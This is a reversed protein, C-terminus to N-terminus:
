ALKTALVLGEVIIDTDVPDQLANHFILPRYFPNTSNIVATGRSRAIGLQPCIGLTNYYMTPVILKTHQPCCNKAEERYSSYFVFNINPIGDTVHSSLIYATVEILGSLSGNRFKEYEEADELINQLSYPVAAVNQLKMNVFSTPLFHDQFTYGVKLNKIVSIGLPDLIESPGMGFLQLLQPSNIVGTCLIVENTAHVTRTHSSHVFEVGYAKNTNPDILVNMVM